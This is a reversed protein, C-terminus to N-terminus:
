FLGIILYQSFFYM